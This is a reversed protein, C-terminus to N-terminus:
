ESKMMTDIVDIEKRSAKGGTNGAVLKEVKKEADTKEVPKRKVINPKDVPTHEGCTVNQPFDDFRTRQPYRWCNFSRRTGDSNPDKWKCYLCSEKEEVM